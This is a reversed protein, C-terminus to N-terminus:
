QKDKTHKRNGRITGDVSPGEGGGGGGGSSNNTGEGEPAQVDFCPLDVVALPGRRDGNTVPAFTLNGNFEAKPTALMIPWIFQVSREEPSLLPYKRQIGRAQLFNKRGHGDITQLWRSM